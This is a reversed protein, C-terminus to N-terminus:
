ATRNILFHSRHRLASEAMAELVNANVDVINGRSRGIGNGRLGIGDSAMNDEARVPECWPRLVTQVQDHVLKRVDHLM